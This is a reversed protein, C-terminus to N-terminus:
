RNEIAAMYNIHAIKRARRLELERQIYCLETEIHSRGSRDRTRGVQYTLNSFSRNLESEDMKSLEDYNLKKM